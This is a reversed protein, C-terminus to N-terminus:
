CFGDNLLTQQFSIYLWRYFYRELNKSLAMFEVLCLPSSQIGFKHIWSICRFLLCFHLHEFDNCDEWIACIYKDVSSCTSSRVILIFCHAINHYLNRLLLPLPGVLIIPAWLAIVVGINSKEACCLKPNTCIFIFCNKNAFHIYREPFVWAM